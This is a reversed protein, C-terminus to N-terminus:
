FKINININIQPSGPPRHRPFPPSSQPLVAALTSSPMMNSHQRLEEPPRIVPLQYAPVPLQSPQSTTCARSRVAAAPYIRQLRSDASQGVFNPVDNMMHSLGALPTLRSMPPDTAGCFPASINANDCDYSMSMSSYQRLDPRPPYSVQCVRSPHAPYSGASASATVIRSPDSSCRYFEGPSSSVNAPAAVVPEHLVRATASLQSIDPKVDPPTGGALHAAMFDPPVQRDRSEHFGQALLLQRQRLAQQRLARDYKYMPGFKNRGGRM